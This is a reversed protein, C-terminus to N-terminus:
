KREDSEPKAGDAPKDTAAPADDSKAPEQATEAPAETAAPEKGVISAKLIYDLKPFKSKLYASGQAKILDQKPEERYEANLKAVVDMGSVVKGIPSFGQPDLSRSNDGLNIFLQSSRSNPLGSKAFTVTGKRNSEKVPEDKLTSEAWKANMAPDGSLGFQVVFGPVVRFFGADKFFGSTVLEKLRGVGIPAWDPYLEIVIDGKTTELKVTVKEGTAATGGAGGSLAPASSIPPPPSDTACSLGSLLVGVLLMWHSMRRM